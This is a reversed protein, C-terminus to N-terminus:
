LALEKVMLVASAPCISAAQRTRLVADPATARDIGVFGLREFFSAASTTLLYARLAGGKRAQDLVDLTIARGFGRCWHAPDVAISRLLVDGDAMEFGGCGIVLGDSTALFFTRGADDLDDIPLGAGDLLAKLAPDGEHTAEIKIM